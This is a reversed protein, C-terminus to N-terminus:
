NHKDNNETHITKLKITKAEHKGIPTGNATIANRYLHAWTGTKSAEVLAELDNRTQRYFEPDPPSDIVLLEQKQLEGISIPIVAAVPTGAPITIEINPSTVMWAIPLGGRYFSTSMLTTFATAGPIFQNPVPMTLLSVNEDTRFLLGTDFSVTAQGRNTSVYKEGSLIKIHDPTSDFVGDWIFSIDEPFSIGWGLGNTLTIPFCNYAHKDYTRDMWKRKVSLQSINASDERTRHVFFSTM